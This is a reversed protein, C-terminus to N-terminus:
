VKKRVAVRRVTTPKTRVEAANQPLQPARSLEIPRPLGGDRMKIGGMDKVGGDFDIRQEVTKDPKFNQPANFDPVRREGAPRGLKAELEAKRRMLEQYELEEASAAQAAAVEEAKRQDYRERWEEIESENVFVQEIRKTQLWVGIKPWSAAEPVFDGFIRQEVVGAASAVQIPMLAKYTAVTRDATKKHQKSVGKRVVVKTM